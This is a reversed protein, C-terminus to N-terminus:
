PLYEFKEIIVEAENQLPIRTKGYVYFSIHISESGPSPVGSTFVHEAVVRPKAGTESGPSKGAIGRISKFSVRGPEWHFSHTMVGPPSMFRFVNVPVYYPQIVYQANKSVPDGWRSIEIDMEQHNQDSNLDDWTYLGLVAAPEMHMIERVVFHYSGYGLSRRLTVEACSWGEPAKAIRLHLRGGGDTWANAPDYENRAGGRPSPTQRIEWEYGSFHLTKPAVIKFGAGKTSAIAVVASGESPLVDMTAPPVYEPEVLLAAYDSGLHTSNTWISDSGIMTFPEIATPQVWWQGAKAYIVIRQGPRAGIVRGEISAVKDSGGVDAPPIKSFELSPRTNARPSRCGCLLICVVMLLTKRFLDHSQHPKGRALLYESVRETGNTGTSKQM